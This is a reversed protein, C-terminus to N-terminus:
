ERLEGPVATAKEVKKRAKKPRQVDGGDLREFAWKNAQVLADAEPRDPDMRSGVETHGNPHRLAVPDVVCRVM